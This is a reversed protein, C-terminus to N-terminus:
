EECIKLSDMITSFYPDTDPYFYYIAVGQAKNDSDMEYEYMCTILGSSDREYVKFFELEGCYFYQIKSLGGNKLSYYLETCEEDDEYVICIFDDSIYYDRSGGAINLKTDEAYGSEELEGKSNKFYIINNKVTFGDGPYKDFITIDPFAFLCSVTSVVLICFLLFKKKM